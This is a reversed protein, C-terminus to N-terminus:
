LADTSPEVTLAEAVIHPMSLILLCDYKMDGPNVRRLDAYSCLDIHAPDALRKKLSGRFNDRARGFTTEDRYAEAPSLPRFGMVLKEAVWRAHECRSLPALSRAVRRMLEPKCAAAYAALDITGQQLEHLRRAAPRYFPPRKDSAQRPLGLVGRLRSEFTDALFVNSLRDRVAKQMQRKQEATQPHKIRWLTMTEKRRKKFCLTNLALGYRLSDTNDTAPLNDIDAGICYVMNALMAKSTDIAHVEDADAAALHRRLKEESIRCSDPVEAPDVSGECALEIEVDLYPLVAERERSEGGPLRYICRAMPMFNCIYEERALTAEVARLEDLTRAGPCVVTIRTRPSGSAEDFDPYHAVLVLQRVAALMLPSCGEVVIHMASGGQAKRSAAEMDALRAQVYHRAEYWADVTERGYDSGDKRTLLEFLKENHAM